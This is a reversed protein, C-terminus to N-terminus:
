NVRFENNLQNLKKAIAYQLKQSQLSLSKFEATPSEINFNQQNSLEFMKQTLLLNDIMQTRIAEVESSKLDLNTLEELETKQFEHSEALIEAIREKNSKAAIIENRLLVSRSNMADVIQNLKALDSQIDLKNQGSLESNKEPLHDSAPTTVESATEMDSITKNHETPKDSCASIALIILGLPIFAFKKM